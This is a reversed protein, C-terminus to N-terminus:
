AVQNAESNARMGLSSTSVPMGLLFGQAHTVGAAKAAELQELTEIGEAVVSMGLERCGWSLGRLMAAGRAETLRKTFSPDIKVASVPLSLLYQFTSYGTGFDDVALRVGLDTIQEITGRAKEMRDILFSETLEITLLEPKLRHFDLSATVMDVFDARGMQLASVNVAISIDRSGAPLAANVSSASRIAETIIWEGLDRILGSQEAITIMTSPNVRGQVPHDWRLLAEASVAQELDDIAYIPQFALDLANGSIARRLDRRLALPSIKFSDDPSHYPAAQNRGLRKAEYMAHDAMQLISHVTAGKVSLAVGISGSLEIQTDAIHFPKRLRPLIREAFEMAEDYNGIRNAIVVFEDGGLRAVTDGQRSVAALRRGVEAIVEDGAEHGLSDNVQKFGDLDCLLLAFPEYKDAGLLKELILELSRRNASGTLPDTLAYEELKSERAIVDTVDEASGLYQVGDGEETASLQVNLRVIREGGDIPARVDVVCENANSLLKPVMQALTSGQTTALNGFDEMTELHRGFLEDLKQNKFVLEGRESIRFFGQPVADAIERMHIRRVLDGTADDEANGVLSFAVQSRLNVLSLTYVEDSGRLQVEASAAGEAWARLWCDFVDSTSSARFLRVLGKGRFNTVRALAENHFEISTIGLRLDCTGQVASLRKPEPREDLSGIGNTRHTLLVLFPTGILGVASLHISEGGRLKLIQHSLGHERARRLSLMGTTFSEASYELLEPAPAYAALAPHAAKPDLRSYDPERAVAVGADPHATLFDTLVQPLVEPFGLASM